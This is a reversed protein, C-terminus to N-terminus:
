SEGSSNGLFRGYWLATDGYARRRVAEWDDDPWPADQERADREVVVIADEALWGGTAMCRLVDHVEDVPVAYPPDLFALDFAAESPRGLVERVSASSIRAGPLGVAEINAEISRRADRDHDVLLVERAGRSLAELGLAGSGAYLDLVRLDHWGGCMADLSSFLAERVRDSTPRTGKAPAVLRRGGASGGIIRM